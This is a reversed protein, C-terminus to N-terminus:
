NVLKFWYNVFLYGFIDSFFLFVMIERYGYRYEVQLNIVQKLMNDNFRLKNINRAQRKFM